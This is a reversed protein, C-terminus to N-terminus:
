KTIVRSFPKSNLQIYSFIMLPVFFQSVCSSNSNNLTKGSVFVSVSVSGVAACTHPSVLAKIHTATNRKKGAGFTGWKVGVDGEKGGQVEWGGGRETMTGGRVCIVCIVRWVCTYFGWQGMWDQRWMNIVPSGFPFGVKLSFEGVGEAAPLSLSCWKEDEWKAVNADARVSLVSKIQCIEPKVTICLTDRLPRLTYM